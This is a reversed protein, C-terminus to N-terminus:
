PCPLFIMVWEPHSGHGIIDIRYYKEYTDKTNHKVGIYREIRGSSHLLRIAKKIIYSPCYNPTKLIIDKQRISLWSGIANVLEESTMTTIFYITYLKYNESKEKSLSIIVRGQATATRGNEQDPFPRVSSCPHAVEM